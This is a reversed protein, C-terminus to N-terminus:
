VKQLSVFSQGHGNETLWSAFAEPSYGEKLWAAFHMGNAKEVAFAPFHRMWMQNARPRHLYPWLSFQAEAADRAAAGGEMLLFLAAAFSSRDQGGSCKVLLPRPATEFVRTLERVQESAPLHRSSLRVDYHRLNLAEATRREQRWWHRGANEGRLNVISGLRHPRLFRTYFGLYPQASRALDATV